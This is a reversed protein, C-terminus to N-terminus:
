LEEIEAETMGTYKAIISVPMGDAKMSKASDIKEKRMQDLQTNLIEIEKARNDLELDVEDEVEMKHRIEEDAAARILVQKILDLDKNGAVDINDSDTFFVAYSKPAHRYPLKKCSIRYAGFRHTGGKASRSACKM